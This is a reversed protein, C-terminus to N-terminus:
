DIQYSPSTFFSKSERNPRLVIKSKGKTFMDDIHSHYKTDCINIYVENNNIYKLWEIFTKKM